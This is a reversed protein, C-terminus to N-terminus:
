WGPGLFDAGASMALVVVAAVALLVSVVSTFSKRM